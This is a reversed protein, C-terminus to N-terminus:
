KRYWRRSNNGRSSRCISCTNGPPVPIAHRPWAASAHRTIECQDRSQQETPCASEGPVSTEALGVPRWILARAAHATHFLPHSIGAGTRPSLSTEAGSTACMTYWAMNRRLESAKWDRHTAGRREALIVWKQESLTVWRVRGRRQGCTSPLSPSIMGAAPPNGPDPKTLLTPDNRALASPYCSRRNQWPVLSSYAFPMPSPVRM